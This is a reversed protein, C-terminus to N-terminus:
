TFRPGSAGRYGSPMGRRSRTPRGSIASISWTVLREAQRYTLRGSKGGGVASTVPLRSQSRSCTRFHAVSDSGSGRPLGGPRLRGEHVRGAGSGGSRFGDITAPSSALSSCCARRWSCGPWLAGVAGLGYCPCSRAFLQRFCANYARSALMARVKM